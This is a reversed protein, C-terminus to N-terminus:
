SAAAASIARRVCSSSRSAPRAASASAEREPSFSMSTNSERASTLSRRHRAIISRIGRSSRPSFTRRVAREASRITSPSRESFMESSWRPATVRSGSYPGTFCASSSNRMRPPPPYRSARCSAARLARARLLLDEDSLARVLADGPNRRHAVSAALGIRRLNPDESGLLAGIHPSALEYPLWGLASVAGGSLEPASAAPELAARIREGDGSEFALESAAFVEGADKLAWCRKCVEIGEDGAIRLGDLHAEIRGDLNTLHALSYHPAGLARDRLLWLFAAEEAHQSVIEPIIQSM